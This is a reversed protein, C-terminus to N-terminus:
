LSKNTKSGFLVLSCDGREGPGRVWGQELVRREISVLELFALLM